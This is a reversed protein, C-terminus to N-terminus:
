EKLSLPRSARRVVREAAARGQWSVPRPSQGPGVDKYVSFFHAIEDRLHRPVDDLTHWGRRDDHVPVCLLKPERGGGTEIWLVAIPHCRVHCGPFTPEEVVVLADLEEGDSSRTGDVYGYDLPFVTATFLTRDLWIVGADHDIEYKNRTGAPVEVVVVVELRAEAAAM